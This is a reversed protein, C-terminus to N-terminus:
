PAAPTMVARIHFEDLPGWADDATTANTYVELKADDPLCAAFAKLEKATFM